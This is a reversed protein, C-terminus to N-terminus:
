LGPYSNETVQTPFYQWESDCRLGSCKVYQMSSERKAEENIDLSIIWPYASNDLRRGDLKKFLKFIEAM